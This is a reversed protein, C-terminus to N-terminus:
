LLYDAVLKESVEWLKDQLPVSDSLMPDGRRLAQPAFFAGRIDQEEIAPATALYLQTLAGSKLPLGVSALFADFLSAAFSSMDNKVHVQLNTQIGGPNCSNSYVKKGQLRRDLGKAFLVNALKSRMYAKKSDYSAEYDKGVHDFDIIPKGDILWEPGLYAIAGGGTAAASSTTVVRSPAAAELEPMLLKTLLFHGLHNTAFQSEFGDVTLTFPNAMVGANNMLINLKSHKAKFATAFAKVSRLSALDLEMVEAKAGPLEQLLEALAAEGKKPNRGALIVHAGKRALEIASQHGIGGITPGTVIAVKGSLDPM